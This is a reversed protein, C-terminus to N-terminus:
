PLLEQAVAKLPKMKYYLVYTTASVYFIVYVWINPSKIIQLMESFNWLKSFWALFLWAMPPMLFAGIYWLYITRIKKKDM